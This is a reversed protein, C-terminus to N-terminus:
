IRLIGTLSLPSLSYFDTQHDIYSLYQTGLGVIPSTIPIEFCVFSDVDISDINLTMSDNFHSHSVKCLDMSVSSNDESPCYSCEAMNVHLNTRDISSDLNLDNAMVCPSIAMSLWVFLLMSLLTRGYLYSSLRLKQLM